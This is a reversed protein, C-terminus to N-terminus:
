RQPYGPVGPMGQPQQPNMGQLPGSYQPPQSSPYVPQGPQMGPMPPPAGTPYPQGVPAPVGGSQPVQYAPAGQPQFHQPLVGWHAPPAQQPPQNYPAQPMAPAGYGPQPAGTPVLMGPPAIPTASAGQPMQPAQNGFVQDGSPANIIASGYGLFQVANPNLYLGAKGPPNAPHAKIQLQVNVYDGCKIGENILINQGNEFRFFKIPLSTTCAFVLHGAYGERQAFSVGKDDVGDGDKYKMAFNPPLQRTPYLTFAEEHIAAWIEGPQGPGAQGLVSKPVALGFGYEMLPEGAANFRPQKTNQDTKQRGKFLDGATWVIRGQVMVARGTSQTAM